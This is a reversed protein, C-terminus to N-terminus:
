QFVIKSQQLNPNFAFIFDTMKKHFLDVNKSKMQKDTIRFVRLGAKQLYADQSIDLQMRKPQNHWYEGDFQVVLNFKPFYVDVCFKDFLLIQEFFDVNLVFGLSQLWERGSIELKNLGSKDFQIMNMSQAKETMRQSDANRCSISCYQIQHGRKLSKVVESKPKTFKSNCIKCSFQVQNRKQFAMACDSSCFHNKSRKIEGLPKYTTKGCQNCDINKGNRVM